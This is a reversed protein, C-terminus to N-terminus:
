VDVPARRRLGLRVVRGQGRHLRQVVDLVVDFVVPWLDEQQAAVRRGSRGNELQCRLDSFIEREHDAAFDALYSKM